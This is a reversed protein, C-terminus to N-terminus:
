GAGDEWGDVIRIVHAFRSGQFSISVALFLALMYMIQAVDLSFGTM